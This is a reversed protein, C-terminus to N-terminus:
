VLVQFLAMLAILIAAALVFGGTFLVSFLRSDFKLHMYFLAVIAFKAASLILLLPVWLSRISDVYIIWVELITIAFLIVAIAVYTAPKPHAGAHAHPSNEGPKKSLSKGEQTVM